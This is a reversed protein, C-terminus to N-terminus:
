LKAALSSAAPPSSPSSSNSVSPQVLTRAVEEVGGDPVVVGVEAGAEVGRSVLELVVVLVQRLPQLLALEVQHDHDVHEQGTKVGGREVGQPDVLVQARVSQDLGVRAGVADEVRDLRVAVDDAEAVELLRGVVRERQEAVLVRLADHEELRVGLVVRIGSAQRRDM